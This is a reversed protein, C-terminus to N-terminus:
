LVSLVDQLYLTRGCSGHYTSVGGCSMLAGVGSQRSTPGPTVAITMLMKVGGYERDSGFLPWVNIVM